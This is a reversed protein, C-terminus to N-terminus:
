SLCEGAKAMANSYLASDAKLQAVLEQSAMSFGAGVGGKLQVFSGIRDAVAPDLGKEETM